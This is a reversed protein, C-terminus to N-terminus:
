KCSVTKAESGSEGKLDATCTMGVTINGRKDAKGNITVTTRSGSIKAKGDGIHITRGGKVVKTFVGPM